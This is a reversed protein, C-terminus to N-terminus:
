MLLLCLVNEMLNMRGGSCDKCVANDEALISIQCEHVLTTYRVTYYLGHLNKRM